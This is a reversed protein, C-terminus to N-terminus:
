DFLFESKRNERPKETVIRSFEQFDKDDSSSRRDRSSERSSRTSHDHSNQRREPSRARKPSRSGQDSSSSRDSRDHRNQRQKPSQARKPSSSGPDLAQPSNCGAQGQSTTSGFKSLADKIRHKSEELSGSFIVCNSKAVMQIYLEAKRLLDCLNPM